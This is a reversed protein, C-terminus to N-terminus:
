RNKITKLELVSIFRDAWDFNFKTQQEICLQKIRHYYNDDLYCEQIIHEIEEIKGPAFLLEPQELMTAIGGSASGIVPTGTHLAEFVVNPFSDYISPVVLLDYSALQELVNDVHGHFVIRRNLRTDKDIDKQLRSQAKGAGLVHLELECEKIILNRVAHYLFRFGKRTGISGVFVIKRCQSSNNTNKLHQNFWSANISNPVVHLKGRYAPNRRMISLADFSTQVIVNTSLQMVHKELIHLYSLRVRRLIQLLPNPTRFHILYQRYAEVFNSRVSLFVPAHLLRGLLSGAYITIEGFVVVADTKPIQALITNRGRLISILDPLPKKGNKNTGKVQVARIKENQILSPNQLVLTVTHGKEAFQHLLEFYRKHAGTRIDKRLFIGTIHM